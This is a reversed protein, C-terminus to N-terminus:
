LGIHVMELFHRQLVSSKGLFMVSAALPSQLIYHIFYSASSSSPTSYPPPFDRNVRSVCLPWKILCMLFHSYDTFFHHGTTMQQGVTVESGPLDLCGGSVPSRVQNETLWLEPLRHFARVAVIVVNMDGRGAAVRTKMETM